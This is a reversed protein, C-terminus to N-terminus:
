RGSCLTATCRSASCPRVYRRRDPLSDQRRDSLARVQDLRRTVEEGLLETLFTTLENASGTEVAREALPIVPGVPTGAPKLGTYAAGEGARHVRAVAKRACCRHAQHVSNAPLVIASTAGM